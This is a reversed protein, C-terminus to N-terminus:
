SYQMSTSVRGGRKGTVTKREGSKEDILVVEVQMKNDGMAKAIADAIGSVGGRTPESTLISPQVQNIGSSDTQKEESPQNVSNTQATTEDQLKNNSLAYADRQRQLNTPNRLGKWRDDNIATNVGNSIQEPSYPQSGNEVKIIAPIIKELVKPDHFNIPQSPDMGTMKSVSQIYANTNNENPPAYTNIVDNITNKGRDGYLLLQRTLASVGDEDSGFTAFGKNHGTNNPAVRLNGPNNNRLGLTNKAPESYPINEYGQFVPKSISIIDDQLQAATNQPAKWTNHKQRLNDTMIGSNVAVQEDWSLSDFMKKDDRMERLKNAEDGRNFGLASGVGIEDGNVILDTIGAIGDKISGDSLLAAYVKNAFKQKLGDWAAGTETIQRDLDTLQDNLEPNVTLGFEDSKALLEKLRAGERLLALANDDLGMADALTKQINSNLKPFIKAANEFTKLADTTGDEKVAIEIGHKSMLALMTDNRAWRPDNFLKYLGEVSQRASEGDAGVIQMAGALRSLGDVSMGANKAAVDLSYANEGAEKLGTAVKVLGYGAASIGGLKLGMSGFKQGLEGVMKIPPVLDGIFQVGKRANKSMEDLEDNVVKLNDVSDQGGLKLQDQAQELQPILNKVAEDIRQITETVKDDAVLEFDFSNGM